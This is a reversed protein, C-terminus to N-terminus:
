TPKKSGFKFIDPVERELTHLYDSTTKVNAHGAADRVEVLSRGGTLAHSCFSHRGCHLHLQQARDPGLCRIATRWKKAVLDETLRQGLTGTVVSCVFPLSPDSTLSQRDKLWAQLDALTGKDWWLPVLRARRKSEQGKTIAKRIRIAPRSGGFVFDGIDIGCIEKARLGCCCSLRFITRNLRSNISRKCRRELDALVAAIEERTLIDISNM